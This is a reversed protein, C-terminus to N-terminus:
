TFLTSWFEQHNWQFYQNPVLTKKVIHNGKITLNTEGNSKRQTLKALLIKCEKRKKITKDWTISILTSVCDSDLYRLNKTAKIIDWKTKKSKTKILVPKTKDPVKNGIRYINIVDKLDLKIRTSILNKITTCDEKLEEPLTASSEPLTFM